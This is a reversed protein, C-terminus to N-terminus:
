DDDGSGGEGRRGLLRKELVRRLILGCFFKGSEDPHLGRSSTVRPRGGMEREGKLSEM